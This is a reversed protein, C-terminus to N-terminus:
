FESRILSCITDIQPFLLPGKRSLRERVIEEAGGVGQLFPSLLVRLTAVGNVVTLKRELAEGTEEFYFPFLNERVYIAEELSLGLVKRCNAALTTTMGEYACATQAFDFLPHGYGAEGVDILLLEEGQLMVNNMHFDGHVFGRSEPITELLRRVQAYEEKTLMPALSEAAALYREQASSLVNGGIQVEHIGRYMAAFRRLYEERREPEAMVAESLVGAHFMEYVEGYGEETRVVDYSIATPIGYILVDKSVRMEAKIAELTMDKVVKLITEGDLRYVTSHKGAGIQELGMVSVFRLAKEVNLPSTSGTVSFIEYVEPSVSRVTIKGATNKQLRLLVRLGASSIYELDGADLLPELGPHASLASALEQEFDPANTSNIKGALEICLKGNEEVAKM